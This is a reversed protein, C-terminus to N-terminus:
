PRDPVALPDDPATLHDPDALVYAPDTFLSPGRHEIQGSRVSAAHALVTLLVAALLVALWGLSGLSLDPDASAARRIRPTHPAFAADGEGPHAADVGQTMGQPRPMGCPGPGNKGRPGPPEGRLRVEDHEQLLMDSPAM